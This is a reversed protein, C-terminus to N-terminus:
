RRSGIEFRSSSPATSGSTKAGYTNTVTCRAEAGSNVVVEGSASCDGSWVATYRSPGKQSILYTGPVVSFTVTNGSGTVSGSRSGKKTITQKFDSPQATGGSVLVTIKVSGTSVAAADGAWFFACAVLLGVCLATLKLSPAASATGAPKGGLANHM